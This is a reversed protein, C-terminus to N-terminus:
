STRRAAREAAVGRFRPGRARRTGASEPLRSSLDSVTRDLRTRHEELEAQFKSQFDAVDQKIGALVSRVQSEFETRLSLELEEINM